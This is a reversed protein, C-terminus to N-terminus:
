TISGSNKGAAIDALQGDATGGVIATLPAM